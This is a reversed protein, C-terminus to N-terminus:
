LGYINRSPVLIHKNDPKVYYGHTYGTVINSYRSGSMAGQDNSRKDRSERLKRELEALDTKSLDYRSERQIVERMERDEITEDVDNGLFVSLPVRAFALVMADARDPSEAGRGRADQKSELQSRGKNIHYRRSTLQTIGKTDNDHDFRLIGCECLRKIKFYMESGRNAYVIKNHAAMDNKIMAVNCGAEWLSHIIPEGLGGGDANVDEPNANYQALTAIIWDRIAPGRDLHTVERAVRYNGRWLDIVTEDGGLSLDIGGHIPLGYTDRPPAPYLTLHYPIVVQQADAFFEALVSTRWFVHDTGYRKKWRNLHAQTIHPCDFATIHRVFYDSGLEQKDVGFRRATRVTDYFHGAQEGPSSIELWYNYGTYRAFGTWLNVDISKAENAIFMMEGGPRLPHNGEARGATNTVFLRITSGTRNCRVHKDVIDFIAVGHKANVRECLDKIYAFTQHRLQDDSNSTIICNSRIKSLCFWVATPAIIFNDKGSGNAAVLGYFMPQEDTPQVKTKDGREIGVYGGLRLLEQKQWAYPKKSDDYFLLMELPNDFEIAQPNGGAWSPEKGAFDRFETFFQDVQATTLEGPVIAGARPAAGTAGANTGPPTAPEARRARAGLPKPPKVHQKADGLLKDLEDASITSM